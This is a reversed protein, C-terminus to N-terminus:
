TGLCPRSRNKCSRMKASCGNSDYRDLRGGEQRKQDEKSENATTTTTLPSLPHPKSTKNNSFLRVQVMVVALLIVLVM